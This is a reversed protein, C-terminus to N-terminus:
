HAVASALSDGDLENSELGEVLHELEVNAELWELVQQNTEAPIASNLIRFERQKTTRDYVFHVHTTLRQPLGLARRIRLHFVTSLNDVRRKAM